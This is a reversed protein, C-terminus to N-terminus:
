SGKGARMRAVGSAHSGRIWEWADAERALDFTREEVPTFPSLANIMVAAWAPAGVVAYKRVHMGARGQVKLSEWDFAADLDMGHWERIIILLDIEEISDFAAAVEAAMAEVEPKSIRGRVEFALLDPRSASLREIAGDEM